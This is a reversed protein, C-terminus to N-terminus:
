PEVRSGEKMPIKAVVTEPSKIRVSQQDRGHQITDNGLQDTTTKFRRGQADRGESVQDRTACSWGFPRAQINKSRLWAGYSGHVDPDYEERM